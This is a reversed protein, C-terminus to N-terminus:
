HGLPRHWSKELIHQAVPLDTAPSRARRPHDESGFATPKDEFRNKGTM